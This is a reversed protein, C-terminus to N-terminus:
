PHTHGLTVDGMLVRRRVGDQGVVCLAGDPAVDEAIVVTAAGTRDILTVTQGVIGLRHRWESLVSCRNGRARLRGYYCDLERLIQRLLPLRGVTRGTELSLSTATAAIEPYTSVDLNVNLGIGVIAFHLENGSIAGETLIGGVKRGAIMLDNPWKMSCQVSLVTEIARAVALAGLATLIFLESPPFTPRFIISTLICAGPPAIWSRGRQGRGHTQKEAIVITGEYAAREAAARAWDNTSTVSRLCVVRKGVVLTALNATISAPSLERSALPKPQDM